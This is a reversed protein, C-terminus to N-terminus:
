TGPTARCRSRAFGDPLIGGFPEVIVGLEGLRYPAGVGLVEAIERLAPPLPQVPRRALGREVLQPGLEALEQRLPSVPDVCALRFPQIREEVPQPDRVLNAAPIM